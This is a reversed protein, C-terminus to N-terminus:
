GLKIPQSEKFAIERYGVCLLKCETFFDGFFFPGAKNLVPGESYIHQTYNVNFNKPMYRNKLVTIM